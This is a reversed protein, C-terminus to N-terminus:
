ILTGVRELVDVMAGKGCHWATDTDKVSQWVETEDVFYHASSKTENNAFYNVNSKAKDGNNATYSSLV